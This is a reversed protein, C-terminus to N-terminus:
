KGEDDEEEEDEEDNLGILENLSDMSLPLPVIVAVKFVDFVVAM